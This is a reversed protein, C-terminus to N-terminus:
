SLNRRAALDAAVQSFEQEALSGLEFTRGLVHFKCTTSQGLKDKVVVELEGESVSRSPNKFRRLTGSGTMSLPQGALTASVTDIGNAAEVQFVLDSIKEVKIFGGNEIPGETARCTLVPLMARNTRQSTILQSLDDLPKLDAEARLLNRDRREEVTFRLETLDTTAKDLDGDLKTKVMSEIAALAAMEAEDLAFPIARIRLTREAPLGLKDTVTIKLRGSPKSETPNRLRIKGARSGEFIQEGEFEVRCEDVGNPAQIDLEIESLSALRMVEVDDAQPEDGLTLAIVPPMGLRNQQDLAAKLRGELGALEGSVTERPDLLGEREQNLRDRAESALQTARELESKDIALALDRLLAALAPSAQFRTGAVRLTLRGVNGFVDTATAELEGSSPIEVNSVFSWQGTGKPQVRLEINGFRATTGSIDNGKDIRLTLDSLSRVRRIEGDTDGGEIVIDPKEERAALTAELTAHFANLKATAPVERDLRMATAERIEALLAGLESLRTRLSAPGEMAGITTNIAEARSVIAPDPEWAISRVPIRTEVTAGQGGLYRILLEGTEFSGAPDVPSLNDGRPRLTLETEIGDHRWIAAEVTADGRTELALETLSVLDIPEDGSLAQEGHLVRLTSDVKPDKTIMRWALVGAVAIALFIISAIMLSMGKRRAPMHESTNYTYITQDGVATARATDGRAAASFVKALAEGLVAANSYRDKPEKALCRLIIREIDQNASSEFRFRPPKPEDFFHQRWVDRGTFPPAGSALEYLLCGIAYVDSAPTLKQNEFQEPSMYAPTGSVTGRSDGMMGTKQIAHAIGFDAIKHRGDAAVMVNEPKIDKHVLQHTHAHAVGACLDQAVKEFRERSMSPNRQMEQRLSGGEIFEMVVYLRGDVLEDAAFVAVVNPHVPLKAMLRAERVLSNEDEDDEVLGLEHLKIAVKRDLKKDRALYVVGMGGRGLVSEIEFPQAGGFDDHSLKAGEGKPKASGSSTVTHQTGRETIITAMGGPVGEDQNSNSVSDRSIPRMTTTAALSLEDRILSLEAVLEAGDQPRDKPDRALCRAVLGRLREPMSTSQVTSQATVPESTDPEADMDSGTLMWLLLSALDHADTRADPVSDSRRYEPARSTTRRFPSEGVGGVKRWFREGDIWVGHEAAGIHVTDVDIGLHAIGGAHLAELVHAVGLAVDIATGMPLPGRQELFNRISLGDRLESARWGIGQSVGTDRAIVLNANARIQRGLEFEHRLAAALADGELRSEVLARIRV